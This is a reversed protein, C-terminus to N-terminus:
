DSFAQLTFRKAFISIALIGFVVLFLVLPKKYTSTTDYDYSVVVNKDKVIGQQHKLTYTPRGVFDLYGPTLSTAANSLDYDVGGIKIQVNTSGEPLVIKLTYDETLIRELAYELKVNRM